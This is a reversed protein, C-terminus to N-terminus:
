LCRRFFCVGRRGGSPAYGAPPVLLCACTLTLHGSVFLSSRWLLAHSLEAVCRTPALREPMLAALSRTAPLSLLRMLTSINHYHLCLALLSHEAPSFAAASCSAPLCSLSRSACAALSALAAQRSVLWCSELVHNSCAFCAGSLALWLTTRCEVAGQSARRLVPLDARNTVDDYAVFRLALKKSSSM